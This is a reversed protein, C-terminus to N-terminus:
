FLSKVAFLLIGVAVLTPVLGVLAAQTGSLNASSITSNIVPVMSVSVAIGIIVGIFGIIFERIEAM